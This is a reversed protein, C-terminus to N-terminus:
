PQIKEHRHCVNEALGLHRDQRWAVVINTNQVEGVQMERRRAFFLNCIDLCKYRELRIKNDASAIKKRM